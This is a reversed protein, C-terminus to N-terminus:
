CLPALLPPAATEVAVGAAAVVVVVGAVVAVVVRAAVAAAVAVVVGAAVAVVAGAVTWDLALVLLLAPFLARGTWKFFAQSWRCVPVNM